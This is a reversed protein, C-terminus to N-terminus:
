PSFFEFVDDLIGAASKAISRGADLCKNRFATSVYVAAVGIYVLKELLL